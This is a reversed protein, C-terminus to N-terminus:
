ATVRAIFAPPSRSSARPTTTSRPSTTATTSSGSRSTPRASPAAAGDAVLVRRHRPRDDSRFYLLPQTVRGLDPCWWRGCRGHGAALGKLPLRPYGCRTRAPSRSTTSSAARAVPRRAQPGAAGRAGQAHEVRVPEGPRSRVGPRRAGRGAPAGGLRGDVARRRRRGRLERAATSRRARGRRVLRDLRGPQPGALATGHGPCCRCRSPTGRSPSTRAGVAEDLRALRHVRARAPRRDRARRHARAHAPLSLPHPPSTPATADPM